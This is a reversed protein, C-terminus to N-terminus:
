TASPIFGIHHASQESPKVCDYKTQNGFFLYVPWLKSQGFQTVHTANSWLMYAAIVWLLGM